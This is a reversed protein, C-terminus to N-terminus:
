AGLAQTVRRGVIRGFARRGEPTELAAEIMREIAREGGAEAQLREKKATLTRKLTETRRSV